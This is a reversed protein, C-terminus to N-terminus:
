RSHSRIIVRKTGEKKLLGGQHFMSSHFMFMSGAKGEIPILAEELEALEPYDRVKNKLKTYDKTQAWAHRRIEEGIIQSEPVCHFAGNETTVDNVYMFSKNTAMKDIHTHLNPSWEEEPIVKTEETSFIEECFSFPRGIWLKYVQKQFDSCFTNYIMPYKLQIEDKNKTKLRCARGPAYDAALKEYQFIQFVEQQLCALDQGELYSPIFCIGYKRITEVVKKPNEILEEKSVSFDYEM